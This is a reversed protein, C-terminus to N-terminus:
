HGSLLLKTPVQYEQMLSRGLGTKFIKGGSLQRKITKTRNLQSLRAPAKESHLQGGWSGPPRRGAGMRPAARRPFLGM